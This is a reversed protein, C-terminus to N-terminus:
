STVNFDTKCVKGAMMGRREEREHLVAEVSRPTVVEMVNDTDEQFPRDLIAGMEELFAKQSGNHLETCKTTCIWCYNEQM